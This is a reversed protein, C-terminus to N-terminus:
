GQLLHQVTMTALQRRETDQRAYHEARTWAGSIVALEFENMRYRMRDAAVAAKIASGRDACVGWFGVSRPVGPSGTQCPVSRMLSPRVNMVAGPSM